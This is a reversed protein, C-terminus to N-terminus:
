KTIKKTKTPKIKELLYLDIIFYITIAKKINITDNENLRIRVFTNSLIVLKCFVDVPELNNDIGNQIKITKRLGNAPIPQDENLDNKVVYELM